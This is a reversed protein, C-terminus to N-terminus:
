KGSEGTTDERKFDMGAIVILSNFPKIYWHNPINELIV